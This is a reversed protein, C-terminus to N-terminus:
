KQTFKDWEDIDIFIDGWNMKELTGNNKQYNNIKDLV